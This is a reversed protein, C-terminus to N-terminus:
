SNDVWKGKTKGYYTATFQSSEKVQVKVLKVNKSNVKKLLGDYLWIALNESTPNIKKFHSLESLNKHDLQKIFYDIDKKLDLFDIGIGIANLKKVTVTVEVLFNHGHVDKCVGKYGRLQHAASFSSEVTLELM